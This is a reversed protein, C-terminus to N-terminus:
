RFVDILIKYTFKLMIQNYKKGILIRADIKHVMKVANPITCHAILEAASGGEVVFDM